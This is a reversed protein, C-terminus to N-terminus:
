EVMAPHSPQRNSVRFPSSFSEMGDLSALISVGHRPADVLAFYNPLPSINILQSLQHDEVRIMHWITVAATNVLSTVANTNSPITISRYVASTTRFGVPRATEGASYQPNPIQMHPDDKVPERWDRSWSPVRCARPKLRM